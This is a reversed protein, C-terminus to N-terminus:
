KDSNLMPIGIECVNSAYGTKEMVFMISTQRKLFSIGIECVYPDYRHNEMISITEEDTKCSSFLTSDIKM